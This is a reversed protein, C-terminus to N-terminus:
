PAARISAQMINTGNTAADALAQLAAKVAAASREARFARLREIQRREEEPDVVLISEADTTLLPSPEHETLKNVGVVTLEGSEIRRQRDAHSAVLARKM